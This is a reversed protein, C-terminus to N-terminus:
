MPFTPLNKMYTLQDKIREGENLVPILVCYDGSKPRYEEVTAAPLQWDPPPDLNTFDIGM